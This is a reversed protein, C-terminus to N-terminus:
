KKDKYNYKSQGMLDMYSKCYKWFITGGIATVSDLTHDVEEVSLKTHTDTIHRGPRNKNRHKRRIDGTGYIDHKVDSYCFGWLSNHENRRIDEGDWFYSDQSYDKGDRITTIIGSVVLATRSGPGVTHIDTMESIRTRGEAGDSDDIRDIVTTIKGYKELSYKVRNRLVSYIAAAEQWLADTDISTRSGLPAGHTSAEARVTGAIYKFEDKKM